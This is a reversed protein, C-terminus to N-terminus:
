SSARAAFTTRAAGILALAAQRSLFWTAAVYFSVGLAVFAALRLPETLTQVVDIERLSTLLALMALSICLPAAISALYTSAGVPILRSVALFAVVNHGVTAILVIAAVAEPGLGGVLLLGVLLTALMLVRLIVIWRRRELVLLINDFYHTTMAISGSILLLAMPAAAGAWEPGLFLHILEPGVAAVGLFIPFAVVTSLQLAIKLTRALHQTDAKVRAFAPLSVRDLATSLGLQLALRMRKGLNYVGAAAPGAFSAVALSDILMTLQAVIGAPALTSSARALNRASALSFRFRPRWPCAIWLLVLSTVAATWQQWVLAEVGMGSYAAVIGVGGGLLVAIISRASLSAFRLDLTLHAEQVRSAAYFVLLLAIQPLVTRLDPTKFLVALVPALLSLVVCLLIAMGLSLAFGANFAEEDFRGRAVLNGVVAESALPRCLEVLAIAVAVTGFATPGVVRSIAIFMIFALVQSANGGVVAWTAGRLARQRLSM